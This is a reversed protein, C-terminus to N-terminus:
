AGGKRAALINILEAATHPAVSTTLFDDLVLLDFNHPDTHFDLRRQSTPELVALWNALHDLRFYRATYSKRSAANLLSQALYTTGVSFQSIGLLNRTADIWQCSDAYRTVHRAAYL